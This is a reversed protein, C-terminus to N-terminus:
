GDREGDWRWRWQSEYSFGHFPDEEIGFAKCMASRLRSVLKKVADFDGVQEWRFEGNGACVALLLLFHRM